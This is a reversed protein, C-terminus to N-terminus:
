KSASGTCRLERPFSIMARRKNSVTFGTANGHVLQRNDFLKPIEQARALFPPKRRDNNEQQDESRQQYKGLTRRQCRKNIAQELSLPNPYRRAGDSVPPSVSRM